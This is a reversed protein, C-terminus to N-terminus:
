APRMTAMARDFEWFARLSAILGYEDVRYVFVGESEMVYGGIETVIVGVNAVENGCAFSDRIDFRLSDTAAVTKDYFASIEDTGRHGRGTDDLPSVGVPDEILADSRFLALWEDKNKASAAAMSRRGAERALHVNSPATM